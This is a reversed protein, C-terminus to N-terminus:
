RMGNVGVLVLIFTSSGMGVAPHHFQTVLLDPSEVGGGLKCTDGCCRSKWLRINSAVSMVATVVIDM